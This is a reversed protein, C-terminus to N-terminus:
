HIHNDVIHDELREKTYTGEVKTLEIQTSQSAVEDKLDLISTGVWLIAALILASIINNITIGDIAVEKNM